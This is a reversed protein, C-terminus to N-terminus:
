LCEEERETCGHEKQEPEPDVEYCLYHVHRQVAGCDLISDIMQFLSSAESLKVLLVAVEDTLGTNLLLYLLAVQFTQRVHDLM